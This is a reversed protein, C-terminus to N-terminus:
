SSPSGCIPIRVSSPRIPSGGLPLSSPWRSGGFYAPIAASKRSFPPLTVPPSSNRSARRSFSAIRAIRAESPSIEGSCNRSATLTTTPLSPSTVNPAMLPSFYPALSTTNGADRIGGWNRPTTPAISFAATTRKLAEERGLPNRSTRPCRTASSRVDAGSSRSTPLFRYASARVDAGFSSRTPALRCACARVDAGSSRSTPSYRIASARVDTGFSSRTPPSTDVVERVDAGSSRSTPPLSTASARVDAGSSRFTPLFRIASARVDAGSSRFTPLFRDM